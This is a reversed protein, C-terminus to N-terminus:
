RIYVADDPESEWNEEWYRVTDIAYNVARRSSPNKEPDPCYRIWLFGDQIGAQYVNELVIEQEDHWACQVDYSLLRITVTSYM